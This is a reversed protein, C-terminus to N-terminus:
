RDFIPCGARRILAHAKDRASYIIGSLFVVDGAKLIRVDEESLPTSLHHESM